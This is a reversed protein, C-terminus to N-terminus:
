WPAKPIWGTVKAKASDAKARIGDKVNDVKDDVADKVDGVTDKVSDGADGLRDKVAGAARGADEMTDRAADRAANGLDRARDGVYGVAKGGAKWIVPGYEYLAVGVGVVAAGALIVGGATVTIVGAAVAVPVAVAVVVTGTDVLAVADEWNDGLPKDPNDRGDDTLETVADNVTLVDGIPGLPRLVPKLREGLKGWPKGDKGVDGAPRELREAARIRDRRAWKELGKDADRIQNDSLGARKLDAVSAFSGNKREAVIAAASEDTIGKIGALDDASGQNLLKLMSQREIQATSRKPVRPLREAAGRVDFRRLTAVDGLLGLVDFSVDIIRRLAAFLRGFGIGRGRGPLGRVTPGTGLVISADRRVIEDAYAIVSRGLNASTRATEDLARTANAYAHAVSAGNPIEPHNILFGLARRLEGAQAEALRSLGALQQAHASLDRVDVVRKEDM